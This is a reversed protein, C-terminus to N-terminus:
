RRMSEKKEYLSWLLFIKKGKGKVDSDVLLTSGFQLIPTADSRLKIATLEQFRELLREISIFDLLNVDKGRENDAIGKIFKKSV